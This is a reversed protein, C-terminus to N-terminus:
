RQPAGAPSTAANRPDAVVVALCQARSIAVNIRHRDLIFGLGRSGYEVSPEHRRLHCSPPSMQPCPRAPNPNDRVGWFTFASTLSTDSRRRTVADGRQWDCERIGSPDILASSSPRPEAHHAYDRGPTIQMARPQRAVPGAPPIVGGFQFSRGVRRAQRLVCAASMAPRNFRRRNSACM